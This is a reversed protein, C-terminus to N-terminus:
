RGSHQGDRSSEHSTVSVQFSVDGVFLTDEPDIFMIEGKLCPVRNIWTGSTSGLDSVTLQDASGALVAHERHVEASDILIDGSSRGIVVHVAAAHVKCSRTFASGDPMRGHIELLCDPPPDPPSGNVPVAGTVHQLPTVPPHGAGAGSRARSRRYRVIGVGALLVLPLVVLWGFRRLLTAQTAASAGAPHPLSSGGGVDPIQEARQESEAVSAVAATEAATAALPPDCPLQPVAINLQDLVAALDARFTYAPARETEMSQVGQAASFGFWHGCGDLLPGTVNPLRSDAALRYDAAASAANGEGAGSVALRAESWLPAAGQVILEAPPFAALRLPDGDGPWSSSFVAADRRLDTVQLVSLGAAPFQRHVRAARGNAVFDTGGDLVVLQDGPAAFDFPVLVMGLPSIVVGTVPQVRNDSVPKLVLVVWPPLAQVAAPAAVDTSGALIAPAEVAARVLSLPAVVLGSCLLMVRFDFAAFVPM